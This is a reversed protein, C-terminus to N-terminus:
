GGMQLTGNLSEEVADNDLGTVDMKLTALFDKQGETNRYFGELEYLAAKILTSPHVETWYSKTQTWTVGSLTASLTPSYFLGVVGITYTGDAPPMIVVGDYNFHQAPASANYVLLDSVNYMSTFATISDPYPRFRVPAWYKPEGQAVSAFEESYEEKLKFITDSILPYKGDVNAAWVEKISRVGVTKAIFTGATVVVPYTATAKGGSDFGFFRDLTKQATNIIFDAGADEGTNTTLDYRGSLAVFKDRLDKYDVVM